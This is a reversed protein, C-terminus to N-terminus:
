WCTQRHREKVKGSDLDACTIRHGEKVKRPDLKVVAFELVPIQLAGQRELRRMQRKFWTGHGGDAWTLPNEVEEKLHVMEHLLTQRMGEEDRKLGPRLRIEGSGCDGECCKSAVKRSWRIVTERALRGGFYRDNYDAFLRQLEPNSSNRKM